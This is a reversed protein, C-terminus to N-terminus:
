AEKACAGPRFLHQCIECAVWFSSSCRCACLRFLDNINVQVYHRSETMDADTMVVQWGPWSDREPGARELVTTIEHPADSLQIACGAARRGQMGFSELFHDEM